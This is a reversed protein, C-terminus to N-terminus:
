AAPWIDIRYNVNVTGGSTVPKLYIKFVGSDDHAEYYIPQSPTDPGLLASGYELILDIATTAGSHASIIPTVTGSQATVHVGAIHGKGPVGSITHISTSTGSVAGTFRYVLKRISPHASSM